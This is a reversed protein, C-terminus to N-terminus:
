FKRQWGGGTYRYWESRGTARIVEISRADSVRGSEGANTTTIYFGGNESASGDRRFILEPMGNLRRMFSIPTTAYLRAPAGGLGYVVGEGIPYTRVRENADMVNDNDDDEHLKIAATSVDFLVNVSYQNTVAIRQARSLLGNLSRVAGNIRYQQFDLRPVAIAALTGIQEALLVPNHWPLVMVATGVRLTSTRAAVYTLVNLPASVQNWGTFHHEVLFTGHYGLAEAEVNFEIYDGFGQGTGAGFDGTDAQASGLLGFRM